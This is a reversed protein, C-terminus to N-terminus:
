VPQPTDHAAKHLTVVHNGGEKKAEALAAEARKIILDETDGEEFEIVGFSCTIRGIEPFNHESVDQRYKDAAIKTGDMNTHPLLMVFMHGVWRFLLDSTRMRHRLINAVEVIVEDCILYSHQRAITRFDDINLAILGLPAKYRRAAAVEKVMFDDFAMRNYAKTLVDTRALKALTEFRPMSEIGYVRKMFGYGDFENTISAREDYSRVARIFETIWKFV